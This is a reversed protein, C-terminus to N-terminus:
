AEAAPAAEKAIVSDMKEGFNLGRFAGAESRIVSKVMSGYGALPDKEKTCSSYLLVLAVLALPILPHNKKQLM